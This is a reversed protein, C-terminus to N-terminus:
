IKQIESTTGTIIVSSPSTFFFAEAVRRPLPISLPLAPSTSARLATPRFPPSAQANTIITCQVRAMKLARRQPMVEVYHDLDNKEDGSEREASSRRGGLAGHIGEVEVPLEEEDRVNAGVQRISGKWFIKGVHPPVAQGLLRCGSGQSQADAHQAESCSGLAATEDRPSAPQPGSSSSSQARSGTRALSPTATAHAPRAERRRRRATVHLAGCWGGPGKGSWRLAV